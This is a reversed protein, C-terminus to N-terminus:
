SPGAGPPKEGGGGDLRVYEAALTPSEWLRVGTLTVSGPLRGKLRDHIWRALNEMSPLRGESRVEPLAQNLDKGDLVETVSRMAADLVDLDVVFGTEPDASGEVTAELTFAHAHTRRNGGFDRM